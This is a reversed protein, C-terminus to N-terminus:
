QQVPQISDEVVIETIGPLTLIPNASITNANTCNSYYSYWEPITEYRFQNAIATVNINDGVQKNIPEPIPIYTPQFLPVTFRVALTNDYVPIYM